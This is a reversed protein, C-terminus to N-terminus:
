EYIEADEEAYFSPQYIVSTGGFKNRIEIIKNDDKTDLTCFYLVDADGTTKNVTTPDLYVWVGYLDSLQEMNVHMGIKLDNITLKKLTNEM